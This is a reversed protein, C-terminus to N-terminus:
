SSFLCSPPSIPRHVPFPVSQGPEYWQLDASKSDFLNVAEWFPDDGTKFTRANKNFEDSFVLDYTMGDFGTRSRANQPTDADILDAQKRCVYSCPFFSLDFSSTSM